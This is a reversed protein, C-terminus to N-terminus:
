RKVGVCITLAAIRVQVLVVEVAVEVSHALGLSFPISIRKPPGSAFAMQLATKPFLLKPIPVLVGAVTGYKMQFPDFQARADVAALRMSSM